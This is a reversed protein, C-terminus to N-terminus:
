TENASIEEFLMGEFVGFMAVAGTAATGTAAAGAASSKSSNKEGSVGAAVRIAVFTRRM